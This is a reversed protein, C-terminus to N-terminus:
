LVKRFVVHVPRYGTPTIKAMLGRRFTEIVVGKLGSRIFGLELIPLLTEVLGGGQWRGGAAKIVADDGDIAIVIACVMTEGDYVGLLQARGDDCRARADALRNADGDFAPKLFEAAADNWAISEFVPIGVKEAAEM